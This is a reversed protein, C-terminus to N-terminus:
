NIVEYLNLSDRTNAPNKAKPYSAVGELSITDPDVKLRSRNILLYTSNGVAKSEVLSSPIEVLDIGVGIITIEPLDNLYIQLGDPLTGFYGETGVVIKQDPNELYEQRILEAAQKIGTGATWEELYGSRESRPLPASQVNTLFTIDMWLSFIIFLALGSIALKKLLDKKALIGVSALIVWFPIAFFIYRATMTKSYEAVVLIPLVAWLLTVMVERKFRAFAAVFGLLVLLALLLPGLRLLYDFIAGLHAVLPNFPSTLIHSYGYVYDYNRMGLMHFNTGLRLINFMGYGIVVSILFLGALKTLHVLNERETLKRKPWKSLLWTTPLLIVFFLAPSKTLLAGGLTFGTLIATDIRQYKATLVAFLFTWVGFMTLMSDVLAMRDFFVAFPSITWILSAILAAKKSRFLAYVVLFLGFATGIGSFVSVARGAVLPDTIVKLAPIITWMFLPQKGDSLPLFRLSPEVRMVQAWRVYIAEDAFIPLQNLNYLRLFIALILILLGAGLVYKWEEFFKKM